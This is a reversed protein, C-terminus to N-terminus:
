GEHGGGECLQRELDVRVGSYTSRREPAGTSLPTRCCPTRRRSPPVHGVGASHPEDDRSGSCPAGVLHARQGNEQGPQPPAPLRGPDDHPRAGTGHVGDQDRGRSVEVVGRGGTLDAQVDPLPEAPRVDEPRDLQACRPRQPAVQEPDGPDARAQRRQEVDCRQAGRHLAERAPRLQARRDPVPEVGDRDDRGGRPVAAGRGPGLHEDLAGGAVQGRVVVLAPQPVDPRRQARVM